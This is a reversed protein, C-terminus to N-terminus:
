KSPNLLEIYHKVQEIFFSVECESKVPNIMLDLDNNKKTYYGIKFKAKSLQTLYEISLNENFSLVFLIDPEKSFYNDTVLGKPCGYWNTDKQNIFEVNSWLLMEQPTEKQTVYGLISTKIGQKHLFKSFEKIPAFSNPLLTDFVIIAYNATEFDQVSKNRNSKKFRKSLIKYGINQSIKGM